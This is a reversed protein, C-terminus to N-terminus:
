LLATHIPEDWGIHRTNVDVSNIEIYMTMSKKLKLRNKEHYTDKINLIIKTKNKAKM